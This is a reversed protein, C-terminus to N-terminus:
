SRDQVEENSQKMEIQEKCFANMKTIELISLDQKVQYQLYKQKKHFITVFDERIVVESLDQWLVRHEKYYGPIKIGPEDLLLVTEDFIRKESFILLFALLAFVFASMYDIARGTNILLTGLVAFTVVQIWRLWQNFRGTEDLKTRFFGYFLSFSAVLLVPLAPLFNEYGIYRYYDAGKVILFFGIVIHLLGASRRRSEIGEIKVTINYM